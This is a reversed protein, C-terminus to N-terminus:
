SHSTQKTYWMRNALSLRQFPHILGQKRGRHRFRDEQSLLNCLKVIENSSFGLKDSRARGNYVGPRHKGHWYPLKDAKKTGVCYPLKDAKKTGMDTRYSTPRRPAWATRYSPRRPAWAPCYSTPRRPAWAVYVGTTLTYYTNWLESWFYSKFEKSNENWLVLKDSAQSRFVEINDVQIANVVSVCSGFVSNTLYHSLYKAM